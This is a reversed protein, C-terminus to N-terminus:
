TGLKHAWNYNNMGTGKMGKKKEEEDQRHLDIDCDTYVSYSYLDSDPVGLAACLEAEGLPKM